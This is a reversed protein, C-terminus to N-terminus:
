MTIGFSRRAPPKAVPAPASAPEPAAPASLLSLQADAWTGDKLRTYDAVMRQATDALSDANLIDPVTGSKRFMYALPSPTEDDGRAAAAVSQPDTRLARVLDDGRGADIEHAAHTAIKVSSPQTEGFHQALRSYLFAQAVRAANVPERMWRLTAGLYGAKQLSDYRYHNSAPTDGISMFLDEAHTLRPDIMFDGDWLVCFDHKLKGMDYEAVRRIRNESGPIKETKSCRVIQAVIDQLAAASDASLNMKLAFVARSNAVAEEESRFPWFSRAGRLPEVYFLDCCTDFPGGILRDGLELLDHRLVDVPTREGSWGSFPRSYLRRSHPYNENGYHDSM